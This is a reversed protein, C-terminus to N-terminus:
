LERKRPLLLQPHLLLHQLRILLRMQSRRRRTRASKRRPDELLYVLVLLLLTKQPLEKMTMTMVTLTQSPELELLPHGKRSLRAKTPLLPLLQHSSPM